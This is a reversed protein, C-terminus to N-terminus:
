SFLVDITRYNSTYSGLYFMKHKRERRTRNEIGPFEVPTGTYDRVNLQRCLSPAMDLRGM